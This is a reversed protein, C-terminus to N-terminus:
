LLEQVRGVVQRRQHLDSERMHLELRNVREKITVSAHAPQQDSEQEGLAAHQVLRHQIQRVEELLVPLRVVLM